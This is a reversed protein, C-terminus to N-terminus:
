GSQEYSALARMADGQLRLMEADILLLKNRFTLPNLATWRAFRDRHGALAALVGARDLGEVSDVSDVGDVDAPAAHALALALYLRCDAVSIHAPASWALAEAQRL